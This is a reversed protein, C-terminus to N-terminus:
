RAIVRISPLTVVIYLAAACILMVAPLVSSLTLARPAARAALRPSSARISAGTFYFATESHRAWKAVLSLFLVVM